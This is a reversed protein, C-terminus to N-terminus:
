GGPSERIARKRNHMAYRTFYSRAVFFGRKLHDTQRASAIRSPPQLSMVLQIVRAALTAIIETIPRAAPVLTKACSDVLLTAVIVSQLTNVASSGLSHQPTDLGRSVTFV